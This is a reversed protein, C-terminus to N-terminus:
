CLHVNLSSLLFVGNYWEFYVHVKNYNANQYRLSRFLNVFNHFIGAICICSAYLDRFDAMKEWLKM